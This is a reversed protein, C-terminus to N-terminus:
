LLLLPTERLEISLPYALGHMALQDDDKTNLVLLSVDHEIILRKYDVLHYGFTVITEVELSPDMEALIKQCSHIYDRPEKLLQRRLAEEALETNITPIKSITEVYRLLTAEDEVHTLILKGNPSTFAVSNGVLDDDGTLHDTIAMVTKTGTPVSQSPPLNAPHPLLLVPVTTAQTLVDIYVGLSYPYETARIHLNRYTCILDPQLREVIELLEGVQSYDSQTLVHWEPPKETELVSLFQRVQEQLEDAGAQELDTVVLVSEISVGQHHYPIKDAAKFSSEFHDIETM